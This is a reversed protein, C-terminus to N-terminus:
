AVLGLWAMSSSEPAKSPVSVPNRSQYPAKAAIRDKRKELFRHLSAKRAIPLDAVVPTSQPQFLYTHTHTSPCASSNGQKALSMIQEAKEAPFDDFVMVQGGYFITLQAGKGDKFASTDEEPSHCQRGYVPARPYLLDMTTVNNNENRPFLEMITASHCSNEASGGAHTEHAPNRKTIGLALDGFSGNERLYQSLRNCTQSFTSMEPSKVPNQASVGSYESSTSM